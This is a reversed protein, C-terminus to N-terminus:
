GLEWIKENVQKMKMWRERGGVGMMPFRRRLSCSRRSASGFTLGREEVSDESESESESVGEQSGVGLTSRGRGRSRGRGERGGNSGRGGRDDRGRQRGVRYRCECTDQGRGSSHGGGTWHGRESSRGESTGVWARILSVCRDVACVIVVRGIPRIHRRGTKGIVM